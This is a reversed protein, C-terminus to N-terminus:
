PELLEHTNPDVSFEKDKVPFEQIEIVEGSKSSMKLSETGTIMWGHGNSDYRIRENTYSYTVTNGDDRYSMKSSPSYTYAADFEAPKETKPNYKLNGSYDSYDVQMTGAVIGEKGNIDDKMQERKRFGVMVQDIQEKRQTLEDLTALQDPSYSKNDDLHVKPLNHQFNWAGYLNKAIQIMKEAERINRKMKDDNDAM